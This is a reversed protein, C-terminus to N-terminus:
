VWSCINACFPVRRFGGIDNLGVVVEEVVMFLLPADEEEALILPTGITTLTTVVGVVERAWINLTIGDVEEEENDKTSEETAFNEVGEVDNLAMGLGTSLLCLEDVFVEVVVEVSAILETTGATIGVVFDEAVERFFALTTILRFDDDFLDKFGYM